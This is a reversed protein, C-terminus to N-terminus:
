PPVGLRVPGEHRLMLRTRPPPLGPLDRAALAAAQATEDLVRTREADLGVWLRGLLGAETREALSLTGAYLLGGGRPVEIRWRAAQRLQAAYAFANARRPPQLFLYYQGPGLVMVVWGEQWAQDSPSHHLWPGPAGGSDFDGWGTGIPDHHFDQELPQRVTGHQDTGVLRLLVLSADGQAVRAMAAPPPLRNGCGALALLAGARLAGARLAGALLARRATM